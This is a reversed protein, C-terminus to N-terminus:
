GNFYKKKIKSSLVRQNYNFISVLKQINDPLFHYKEHSICKQNVSEWTRLEKEIKINAKIITNILNQQNKKHRILIANKKFHLPEKIM